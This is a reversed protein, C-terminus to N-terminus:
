DDATAEREVTFGLGRLAASLSDGVQEAVGAAVPGVIRTARPKHHDFEHQDGVLSYPVFWLSAVEGRGVPEYCNFEFVLCIAPHM